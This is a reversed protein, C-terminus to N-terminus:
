NKRGLNILKTIAVNRTWSPDWADGGGEMVKKVYWAKLKALTASMLQDRTAASIWTPWLIPEETEPDDELAGDQEETKIIKPVAEECIMWPAHHKFWAVDPPNWRFAKIEAKGPHWYRGKDYIVAYIDEAGYLYQGVGLPVATRKLAGSAGGKLAEIDSLESLDEHFWGDGEIRCIIGPVIENKVRMEIPRISHSWGGAGFAETLRGMVNRADLYPMIKLWTGRHESFGLSNKGSMPMWGIEDIHFPRRLIAEQEKTIM